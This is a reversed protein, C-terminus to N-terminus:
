AITTRRQGGALKPTSICAQYGRWGTVPHTPALRAIGILIALLCARLGPLPLPTRSSDGGVPALPIYGRIDHRRQTKSLMFNSRRALKKQRIVGTAQEPIRTGPSSPVNREGASHHTVVKVAEGPVFGIDGPQATLRDLRWPHNTPGDPDLPNIANHPRNEDAQGDPAGSFLRPTTSQAQGDFPCSSFRPLAPTSRPM